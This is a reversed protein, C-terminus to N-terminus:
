FHPFPFFSGIFETPNVDIWSDDPGASALGHTPWGIVYFLVGGLRPSVIM